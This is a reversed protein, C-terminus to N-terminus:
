AMIPACRKTSPALRGRESRAKWRGNLGSKKLKRHCKKEEELFTQAIGCNRKGTRRNEASDHHYQGPRGQGAGAGAFRSGGPGGTGPGGALNGRGLAYRDAWRLLDSVLGR